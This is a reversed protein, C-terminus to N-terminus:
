YVCKPNSNWSPFVDVSVRRGGVWGGVKGCLTYPTEKWSTFRGPRSTLCEVGGGTGINLILAAISTSLSFKAEKIGKVSVHLEYRVSFV